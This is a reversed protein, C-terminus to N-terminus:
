SEPKFGSRRIVPAWQVNFAKFSAETQAQTM